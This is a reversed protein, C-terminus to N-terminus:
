LMGSRAAAEAIGGGDWGNANLQESASAIVEPPAQAMCFSRGAAALLPVDNIWDGVAVTESPAIGYHEAIWRLATGKSIGAVRVVMGWTGDRVGFSITQVDDGLEAALRGVAREIRDRPAIAVAAAIAHEGGWNADDWVSQVAEVRDSWVTLFPLFPESRADHYIVDSAFIVTAAEAEVLVSRVQELARLPLRHCLMDRDSGADVIHSGDICAVPGRVGIDHAIGRTGSWM